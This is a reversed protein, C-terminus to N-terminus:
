EGMRTLTEAASAHISEDNNKWITGLQDDSLKLAGIATRWGMWMAMVFHTYMEM